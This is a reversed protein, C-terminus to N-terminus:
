PVIVMSYRLRRVSTVNNKYMTASSDARPWTTEVSVPRSLKGTMITSHTM